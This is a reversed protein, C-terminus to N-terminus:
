FDPKLALIRNDGIGGGLQIAPAEVSLSGAHAGPGAYGALTSGLSLTGDTITGIDLDHGGSILISGANGYLPFPQAVAGTLAGGSVDIVSGRQLDLSYGALTVSGGNNVIPGGFADTGFNASIRGATSLLAGAGLTLMGKGGYGQFVSTDRGQLEWAQDYSVNYTKFDITGGPVIASGAFDINAAALSLSGGSFLDLKVSSPVTISGDHNNIKLSGIGRDGFLGSGLTIKGPNFSGSSGAIGPTLYVDPRYPSADIASSGEIRSNKVQLSLSAPSPLTSLLATSRIQRPGTVVEGLLSGELQM